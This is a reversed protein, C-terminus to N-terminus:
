DLPLACVEEPRHGTDIALEVGTRMAASSLEAVHACVQRMIEVPLDRGPEAPEQQYALRHLFAEMDRRGLAAPVEGSDPRMRLSQSLRAVCGLHHRVVLGVKSTASRRKPLDDAAWRKAVERLWPQSIATFSLTGAHGFVVLDWEDGAVETEPTALARRAHATVANCLAQLGGDPNAAMVVDGVTAVQQHRLQNCLARLDAEKTKVGDLRSRQLLGVLVEAVVVAPLGRLSIQGGRGVPAETLRWRQEDLDPDRRQARRLRQQHAECYRGDRHRRRRGCAAVACPDRVAPPDSGSGAETRPLLRDVDDDVMGQGALRRRCSACVRGRSPATTSCGRARCVPRGLLSHEPPPCLGVAAANWGAEALFAPDIVAALQVAPLDLRTTAAFVHSVDPAVPAVTTARSAISM